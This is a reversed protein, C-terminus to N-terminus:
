SCPGVLELLVLLVMNRPAHEAIWHDDGWRGDSMMHGEGGYNDPAVPALKLYGGMGGRRARYM